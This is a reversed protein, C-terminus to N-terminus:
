AGDGCPLAAAVASAFHYNPWFLEVGSRDVQVCANWCHELATSWSPAGARHELATSWRPAGARHELATSWCCHLRQFAGTGASIVDDVSDQRRRRRRRRLHAPDRATWAAPRAAHLGTAPKTPWLSLPASLFRPQISAPLLCISSPVPPPPPGSAGASSRLVTLAKHPMYPGRRSSTACAHRTKASVHARAKATRSTAGAALALHRLVGARSAVQPVARQRAVAGLHAASYAWPGDRCWWCGISRSPQGGRM